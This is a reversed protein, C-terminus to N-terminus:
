LGSLSYLQRSLLLSKHMMCIFNQWTIYCSLLFYSAINDQWLMNKQQLVEKLSVTEWAFLISVNSLYVIPDTIHKSCFVFKESVFLYVGTMSLLKM